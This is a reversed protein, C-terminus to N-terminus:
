TADQKKRLRYEKMQQKRNEKNKEYYKKMYDLREDRHRQHYAIAHKRNMKRGNATGIYRKYRVAASCADSCYLQGGKMAEWTLEFWEDCKKWACKQPRSEDPPVNGQWYIEKFIEQQWLMPGYTMCVIKDMSDFRCSGINLMKRLTSTEFGCRRSLGELEMGHEACWRHILDEFPETPVSAKALTTV